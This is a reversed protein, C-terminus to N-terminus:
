KVISIVKNYVLVISISITSFTTIGFYKLVIPSLRAQFNYLKSLVLMSQDYDPQLRVYKLLNM